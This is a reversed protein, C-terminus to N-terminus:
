FLIPVRACCMWMHEEAPLATVVSVAERSAVGHALLTAKSSQVTVTVSQFVVALIRARVIGVIVDVAVEDAAINVLLTADRTPRSCIKAIAHQTSERLATTCMSVFGKGSM